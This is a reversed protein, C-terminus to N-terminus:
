DKAASQQREGDPNGNQGLSGRAKQTPITGLSLAARRAQGQRRPEQAEAMTPPRPLFRRFLRPPLHGLSVALGPHPPPAKPPSCAENRQGLLHEDEGPSSSAQSQPSNQETLSDRQAFSSKRRPKTKTREGRRRRTSHLFSQYTQMISVTNFSSFHFFPFFLSM